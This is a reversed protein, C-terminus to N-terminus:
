FLDDDGLDDLDDALLIAAALGSGGARRDATVVEDATLEAVLPDLDVLGDEWGRYYATLFWRVAEAPDRDVGEGDRVREGLRRIAPVHGGEAAIRLWRVSEEVAGEVDLDELTFSLDTASIARDTRAAARYADCAAVPDPEGGFAGAYLAYGLDHLAAGHGQDAAARLQREFRDLDGANRAEIALTYLADAQGGEAAREIWRHAEDPEPTEGFGLQLIRGWHWSAAPDGNRAAAAVSEREENVLDIAAELQHALYETPLTLDVPSYPTIEPEYILRRAVYAAKIAWDIAAVPDSRRRALEALGLLAEPEDGLEVAREWRNGAADDDDLEPRNGAALRGGATASQALGLGAARDYWFLAESASAAVGLGQELTAGLRFAAVADGADAGLRYCEAAATLDAGPESAYVDGLPAWARVDGSEAIARYLEIAEPVQGRDLAQDAEFLSPGNADRTM